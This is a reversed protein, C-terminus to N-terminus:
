VTTGRVFPRLHTVCVPCDVQSMGTGRPIPRECVSCWHITGGDGIARGNGIPRGDGIPEYGDSDHPRFTSFTPRSEERRPEPGPIDVQLRSPEQVVPNGNSSAGMSVDDYKRRMRELDSGSLPVVPKRDSRYSRRRRWACAVCCIIVILIICLAALAVFFWAVIFYIRREEANRAMTQLYDLNRSVFSVSSCSVHSKYDSLMPMEYVTLNYFGRGSEDSPAWFPQPVGNLFPRNGAVPHGINVFNSWLWTLKLSMIDPRKSPPGHGGAVLPFPAGPHGGPHGGPHVGPHVGPPPVGFYGGLPIRFM